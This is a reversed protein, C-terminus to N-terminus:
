TLPTKSERALADNADEENPDYSVPQKGPLHVTLQQVSPVMYIIGFEALGWYGQCSSIYWRTIYLSIEDLENQGEITVLDKGKFHYNSFISFQKFTKVTNLM